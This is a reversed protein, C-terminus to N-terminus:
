GDSIGCSVVQAWIRVATTPLRRSVAQAIARGSEATLRTDTISGTAFAINSRHKFSIRPCSISSSSWSWM